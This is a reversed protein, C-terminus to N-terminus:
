QRGREAWRRLRELVEYVEWPGQVTHTAATPKPAPSVLIGLGQDRVVAFADEDTVDDGIYIPITAKSGSELAERLVTLAKGKDWDLAPRIEFVKKGTAKKLRTDSDVIRDVIREVSSVRVESVLRYHVAVSFGKAEVLCGEIGGVEASLTKEVDEMVPAIWEAIEYTVAARNPGVIDFGHSGAYALERIGVLREVDERGRGSIVATPVVRAVARLLSRREEELVALEPKSAIPTLTGDYDLFLMPRGRELVAEMESWSRIASPRRYEAYRFWDQAIELSSHDFASVIWDAGVERLDVWGSADGIGVVLGFAGARGAQVGSIADEVVMTEKPRAGLRRATEVFIDPAPKGKLGLSASEVGDVQASFLSTLGAAALVLSCNKSSSAVGVRVGQRSLEEVFRVTSEIVDAGRENVLAQFLENKRNGLSWATQFGPPDTEEGPPLEIERSLLFSRVGEIRPKGDVYERYDGEITFPVFVAGLEEARAQLFEDFLRKWSQAHLSATRTVVGDLDFVAAKMRVPNV